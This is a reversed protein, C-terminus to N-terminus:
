STTHPRHFHTENLPENTIKHKRDNNTVGYIATTAAGESDLTIKLVPKPIRLALVSKYHYSSSAKSGYRSPALFNMLSQINFLNLVWCSSVVYYCCSCVHGFNVIRDFFDPRRDSPLYTILTTELDYVSSNFRIILGFIRSQAVQVQVEAHEGPVLVRTILNLM